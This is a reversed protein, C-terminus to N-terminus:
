ILQYSKTVKVNFANTVDVITDMIKSLRQHHMVMSEASENPGSLCMEFNQVNKNILYGLLLRGPIPRNFEFVYDGKIYHFKNEKSNTLVMHM